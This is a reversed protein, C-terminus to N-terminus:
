PKVFRNVRLKVGWEKGKKEIARLHAVSISAANTMVGLAERSETPAIAM